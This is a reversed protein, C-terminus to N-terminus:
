LMTLLRCKQLFITGIIAMTRLLMVGAGGSGDHTFLGFYLERGGAGIRAHNERHLSRVSSKLCPLDSTWSCGSQTPVSCGTPQYCEFDNSAIAMDHSSPVVKAYKYASKVIYSDVATVTELSTGLWSQVSAPGAASAHNDIQSFGFTNVLNHQYVPRACTLLLM